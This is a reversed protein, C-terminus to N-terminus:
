APTRARTINKMQKTTNAEENNDRSLATLMQYSNNSIAHPTNRGRPQRGGDGSPGGSAVGLGRRWSADDGVASTPATLLATPPEGSASTELPEVDHLSMGSPLLVGAAIPTDMFPSSRMFTPKAFPSLKVFTEIDGDAEVRVDQTEGTVGPEDAPVPPEGSEPNGPATSAKPM